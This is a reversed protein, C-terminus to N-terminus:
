SNGLLDEAYFANDSSDEHRYYVFVDRKKGIGQVKRAINKRAKPPYSKKRLRIYCFDATLIEPTVLDDDEALCLAANANSMAAFVEKQFWSEHRFEFASQVDNPLEKLFHALVSLDCKLTPPLQFLLPGLKGAEQVPKLSSIFKLTADGANRLRNIHTISQHAKVAFKFSEPTATIWGTLSKDTPFARFTYNVEVSNLRTAYHTLFKTSALKAPYFDAEV